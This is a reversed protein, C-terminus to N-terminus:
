NVAPVVDSARRLQELHGVTFNSVGISRCKEAERLAVLARWSDHRLPQPWHILYLDLYELGLARLSAECARTAQEFGHDSNWLKTTVFVQERPVGSDKLARGVDAENAYVKATDIHRYGVDLAARVARYTEEGRGAQWVGLGLWPMTHGDALKVASDLIM